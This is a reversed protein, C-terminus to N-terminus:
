PTSAATARDTSPRTRRIARDCAATRPKAGPTALLAGTRTASAAVATWAQLRAATTTETTM